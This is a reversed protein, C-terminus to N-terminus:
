LLANLNYLVAVLFIGVRITLVNYYNALGMCM